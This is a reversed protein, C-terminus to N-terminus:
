ESANKEGGHEYDYGILDVGNAMLGNLFEVEEEILRSIENYPYLVRLVAPTIQHLRAIVFAYKLDGTGAGLTKEAQVVLDLIIQRMTRRNDMKALFVLFGITALIILVDLANEYLYHIIYM